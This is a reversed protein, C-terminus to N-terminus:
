SSAHFKTLNSPLAGTYAWFINYGSTYFIELDTPLVGNFNTLVTQTEISANIITCTSKLSNLNITIDAM